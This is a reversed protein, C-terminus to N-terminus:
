EESLRYYRSSATHEPADCFSADADAPEPERTAFTTWEGTDVSDRRQLRYTKGAKAHYLFCLTGNDGPALSIKLPTESVYELILSPANVADERSAFRRATSDGGEFQEKLLWGFNAAPDNVWTQVDAVLEDTSPFLVPELALSDASGSANATFDVGPAGGSLSWAATGHLRSIWTAEGPGALSGTGTGVGSGGTGEGWQVLVRHLQFTAPSPLVPARVVHFQVTARLIRAGAPIAAAPNFRVLGRTPSAGSTNGAALSLNAGLNHDPASSFLSTDADPALTISDGSAALPTAILLLLRLPYMKM